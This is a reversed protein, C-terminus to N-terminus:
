YFYSDRLVAIIKEISHKIACRPNRKICQAAANNQQEGQEKRGCKGEAEKEGVRDIQKIIDCVSTACYFDRCERKNSKKREKSLIKTERSLFGERKLNLLKTLRFM